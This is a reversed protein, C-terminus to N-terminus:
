LNRCDHNGACSGHGLSRGLKGAESISVNDARVRLDVQAPSPAANVTGSVLIPMTGLKITTNRITILNAQLDDTVDYDASIPYGLDLGHVKANQLNIQGSASLKGSESVIKTQGSLVGDSNVLAPSDLFKALGAIGVQQIELTGQFPTSAPQGQMIPGAQGDLRVKQTGPGPLNAAVNISFPTNSSFNLVNLDIHDYVARPTKSQLDTVAVQGNAISLKGLSFQQGAASPQPAGPSAPQSPGGPPSLQGEPANPASSGGLSSFNWVGQQNEILEVDPRQLNLSNIELAGKLLPLLSVSVDLQQTQVFPKEASFNSDDAIALSQVSFRPPFLNLRMDGLTVKRGLKQELQSQIAGHYRNVNFTLVFM